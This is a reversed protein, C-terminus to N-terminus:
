GLNFLLWWHEFWYHMRENEFLLSPFLSPSRSLFLFSFYVLQVMIVHMSYTLHMHSDNWNELVHFKLLISYVHFNFKSVKFNKEKERVKEEQIVISKHSFNLKRELIKTPCVRFNPKIVIGDISPGFDTTFKPPKFKTFESFHKSKLCDFIPDQSNSSSSAGSAGMGHHSERSAQTTTSTTASGPGGSGHPYENLSTSNSSSCNLAQAVSLGASYPDSVLAWPASNSGSILM